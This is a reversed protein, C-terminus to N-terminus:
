ATRSLDYERPLQEGYDTEGGGGYKSTSRARGNRWKQPTLSAKMVWLRKLNSRRSARQHGLEKKGGKITKSGGRSM